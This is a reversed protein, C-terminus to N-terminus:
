PKRLMRILPPKASARDFVLGSAIGEALERGWLEEVIYLAADYSVVGGASTILRPQGSQGPDDVLKADAKVIARPFTKQLRGTDAPFTTAWRGDLIRAAGLLFAGWCNAHVIRAKASRERIWAILAPDQMDKEYHKGSPVVLIDVNPADAFTRHPIVKLGEATLVSGLHPAVTFVEVKKTRAEAHQFVDLPAVFETNFVGDYILIGVRLPRPAPKPVQAPLVFSGPWWCLWALVMVVSRPKM